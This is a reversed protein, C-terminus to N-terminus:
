KYSGGIYKSEGSYKFSKEKIFRIVRNRLEHEWSPCNVSPPTLSTDIIKMGDLSLSLGEFLENGVQYGHKELVPLVYEKYSEISVPVYGPLSYAGGYMLLMLLVEDPMDINNEENYEMLSIIAEYERKWMRRAMYKTESHLMHGFLGKLNPYNEKELLEDLLLNDRMQGSFEFNRGWGYTGYPELKRLSYIIMSEIAQNLSIGDYEIVTANPNDRQIEKREGLPCFVYYNDGLELNGDVFTDESKVDLIKSKDLKEFDIMVAYKCSDWDNGVEHNSVVCNLTLHITDNGVVYSVSHEKGTAPDIFRITNTLGSNEQTVITDGIPAVPSKHVAVIDEVSQFPNDKYGDSNPMDSALLIRCDYKDLGLPIEGNKVLMMMEQCITKNIEVGMQSDENFSNKLSERYEDLMSRKENELIDSGSLLEKLRKLKYEYYQKIM